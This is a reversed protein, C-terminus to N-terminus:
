LAALLKPKAIKKRCLKVMVQVETRFSTAVATIADGLVLQKVLCLGLFLHDRSKNEQECLPWLPDM